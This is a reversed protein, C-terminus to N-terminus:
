KKPTEGYPYWVVDDGVENTYAARPNELQAATFELEGTACEGEHLTTGRLQGDSDVLAAFGQDKNFVKFNAPSVSRQTEPPLDKAKTDAGACFKVQVTARDPVGQGDGPVTGLGWVTVTSGNHLTATRDMALRETVAHDASNDIITSGVTIAVVAAPLALWWFRARKNRQIRRQLKAPDVTSRFALRPVGALRADLLGRLKKDHHFLAPQVTLTRLQGDVIVLTGAQDELVAVAAATDVGETIRARQGHGAKLGGIRLSGERVELSNIWSPPASPEWTEVCAQHTIRGVRSKFVQPRDPEYGASDAEKANDLGATAPIFNLHLSDVAANVAQRLLAATVEQWAGLGMLRREREIRPAAPGPADGLADEIWADPVVGLSKGAERLLEHRAPGQIATESHVVVCYAAGAGYVELHVGERYGITNAALASLQRCLLEAASLGSASRPVMVSFLVRGSSTPSLGLSDDLMSTGDKRVIRSPGADHDSGTWAPTGDAWRTRPAPGDDDKEMHFPPIEIRDIPFVLGVLYRETTFFVAPVQLASPNLRALLAGAREHADDATTQLWALAAANYGTRRLLDAPWPSAEPRLPVTAATVTERTFLAPLRRWAASVGELVGRLTLTATDTGLEVSVEPVFTVGDGVDVPRALEARLAALALSLTGASEVAEDLLGIGFTVGIVAHSDGSDIWHWNRGTWVTM